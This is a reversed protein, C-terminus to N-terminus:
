QRAGCSCKYGTTVSEYHGSEDVSYSHGSSGGRGLDKKHADWGEVSSFTLGCSCMVANEGPVWVQETVPITYSHTHSPQSPQSPQQVPQSPAPATSGNNGTSSSNAAGQNASGASSPKQAQQGASAGANSAGQAPATTQAANSVANKAATAGGTAVANAGASEAGQVQEPTVNPNAEANRKARDLIDAGVAKEDVTNIVALAEIASTMQEPVVDEAKILTLEFPAADSGEEVTVHTPEPTQYLSGDANIPTVVSLAYDGPDIDLEAEENCPVAFYLPDGVAKDAEVVEGAADPNESAWAELEELTEFTMDGVQLVSGDIKQFQLVVPTSTAEDWGEATISVRYGSEEIEVVEIQPAEEQQACGTLALAGFGLSAALSLSVIVNIVSKKSM